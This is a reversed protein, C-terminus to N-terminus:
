HLCVQFNGFCVAYQSITYGAADYSILDVQQRRELMMLVPLFNGRSAEHLADIVQEKQAEENDELQLDDMGPPRDYKQTLEEVKNEEIGAQEILDIQDDSGKERGNM